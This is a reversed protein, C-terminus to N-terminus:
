HVIFESLHSQSCAFPHVSAHDDSRVAVPGLSDFPKQGVLTPDPIPLVALRNPGLQADLGSEVHQVPFSSGKAVDCGKFIRADPVKAVHPGFRLVSSLPSRRAQHFDLHCVKFSTTSLRQKKTGTKIRDGVTHVLLETEPANFRLATIHFPVGFRGRGEFRCVKPTVDCVNFRELPGM